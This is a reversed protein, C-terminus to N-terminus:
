KKGWETCYKEAIKIYDHMDEVYLRSEYGVKEVRKRDEIFIELKNVIDQVDPKINVVPCKNIGFEQLCEPESGSFVVKGQAMAYVANMGYSLSNCQDIVINSENIVKMYKELPMKGDIIIEVDNSYKNKISEMAEKIIKTGKFGERNLGHFIVLKDKVINSKFKVNNTNLPFPITSRLNSYGHRRYAEAYEYLLPIIGTAQDAVIKNLKQRRKNTWNCANDLDIEQCTKCPSYSYEKTVQYFFWDCGAGLLFTKNNNKFIFKLTPIDIYRPFIEPNIFQVIDNNKLINKNLIPWSVRSFKGQLSSSNNGIQHDSKINKWGDGNAVIIAEHGLEVLGEKLNQHVGSYEGLLLIKM